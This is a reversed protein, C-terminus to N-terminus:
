EFRNTPNFVALHWKSLMEVAESESEIIQINNEFVESGQVDALLMEKKSPILEITKTHDLYIGIEFVLWSEDEGILEAFMPSFLFSALDEVTRFSCLMTLTDLLARSGDTLSQSGDDITRLKVMTLLPKKEVM